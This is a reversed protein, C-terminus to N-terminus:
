RSPNYSNKPSSAVWDCMRPYSINLAPPVLISSTDTSGEKQKDSRLEVNTYLKVEEEETEEEEIQDM